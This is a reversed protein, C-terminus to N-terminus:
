SLWVKWAPESRQLMAACAEAQENRIYVEYPEPTEGPRQVIVTM